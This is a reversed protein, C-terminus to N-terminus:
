YRLARPSGAPVLDHAQVLQYSALLNSGPCRYGFPSVTADNADIRRARCPLRRQRLTPNRAPRVRHATQM